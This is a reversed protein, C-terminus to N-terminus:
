RAQTCKWARITVVEITAFVGIDVVTSGPGSLPCGQVVSVGSCRVGVIYHVIRFTGVTRGNM